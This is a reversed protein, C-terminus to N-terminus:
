APAGAAAAAHLVVAVSEESMSEESANSYRLRPYAPGMDLLFAIRLSLEGLFTDSDSLPFVLWRCEDSSCVSVVDFADHTIRLRAFEVPEPLEIVICQPFAHVVAQKPRAQLLLGDMGPLNEIAASFVTDLVRAAESWGDQEALLDDETVMRRQLLLQKEWLAQQAPRWTSECARQVDELAVRLAATQEPDQL